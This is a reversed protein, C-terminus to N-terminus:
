SARATREVGALREEMEALRRRSRAASLQKLPPLQHWAILYAGKPTLRLTDGNKGGRWAYGRAFMNDQGRATDSQVWAAHDEPRPPNPRRGGDDQVSLEHLAYMHAVDTVGIAHFRKYGCPPRIGLRTSVNSTLTRSHSQTHSHITTWQQRVLRAGRRQLAVYVEAVDGNPAVGVVVFGELHESPAVRVPLGTRFGIAQLAAAGRELMIGAELDVGKVEDLSPLMTAPPHARLRHRALVLLPLGLYIFGVTGLVLALYFQSDRM